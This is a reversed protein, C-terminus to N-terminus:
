ILTDRVERRTSYATAPDSETEAEALGNMMKFAFNMMKFVFDVMKFSFIVKKRWEVSVTEGAPAFAAPAQM